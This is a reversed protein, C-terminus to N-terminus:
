GSFIIGSSFLTIIGVMMIAAEINILDSIIGTLIAGVAYGLDRWLRFIGISEARDRPHTYEAITALFTPYAMATGWGLLAMLSVFHVMTEAWVLTILVLAQLLM